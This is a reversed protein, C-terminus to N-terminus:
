VIHSVGVSFTFSPNTGGIVYRVRYTRPLAVDNEDDFKLDVDTAGPYVIVKKTAASTQQPFAVIPSYIGSTPDKVQVIVDLTPATGSVATINLYFIAGKANYNTQDASNGSSTRAALALVTKETNNRWRDFNTENFAYFRNAVWLCPNSAAYGDGTTGRVLAENSGEYVSTRLNPNTSSEVLLKQWASGDWGMLEARPAARRKLPM